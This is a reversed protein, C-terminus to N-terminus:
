AAHAKALERWASAVYRAVPRYDGNNLTVSDRGTLATAAFMGHAPTRAKGIVLSIWPLRKTIISGDSCLVADKFVSSIVAFGM